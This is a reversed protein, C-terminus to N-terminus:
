YHLTRTRKKIMMQHFHISQNGVSHGGSLLPKVPGDTRVEPSNIFLLCCYVVFLLNPQLIIFLKCVSHRVTM